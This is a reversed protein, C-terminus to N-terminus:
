RLRALDDRLKHQGGSGCGFWTGGFLALGLLASRGLTCARRRWVWWRATRRMRAEVDGLEAQLRAFRVDDSTLRRGDPDGVGRPAAVASSEVVIGDYHEDGSTGVDSM